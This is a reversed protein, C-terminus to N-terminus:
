SAIVEEWSELVTPAPAHLLRIASDALSERQPPTLYELPSRGYARAILLGALVRAVHREDAMAPGHGYTAVFRLALERFDSAREPLLRAKGAFHALMFAVDFAPDGRHAVELDIVWLDHEGVLVNKPSFDGLVLCERRSRIDGALADLATALDPRRQGAAGFYPALRLQEFREAGELEVPLEAATTSRHWGALLGGLREAIWPRVTGALLESKWDHWDRPAASISITHRESDSDLLEPVADASLTHLMTIALAESQARASGGAM